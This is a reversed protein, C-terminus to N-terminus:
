QSDPATTYQDPDSTEATSDNGNTLKKAKLYRNIIEKVEPDNFAEAHEPAIGEYLKSHTVIAHRMKYMQNFDKWQEPTIAIANADYVAVEEKFMEVDCGPIMGTNNDRNRRLVIATLKEEDMLKRLGSFAANKIADNNFLGGLFSM